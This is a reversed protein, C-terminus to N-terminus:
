TEEQALNRRFLVRDEERFGIFWIIAGYALLIATFWAYGRGCHEPSLSGFVPLAHPQTEHPPSLVM